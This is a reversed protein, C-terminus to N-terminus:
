CRYAYGLGMEWSEQKVGHENRHQQNPYSNLIIGHTSIEPVCENTSRMDHGRCPIPIDEWQVHYYIDLYEAGGVM